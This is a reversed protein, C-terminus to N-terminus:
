QTPPCEPCPQPADGGKFYAVGYTIDLGNFNCSSNVDGSVYWFGGVPCDCEDYVPPTGGKFFAVGYVVDLGNYGGDDNVDGTVYGCTPVNKFVSITRTDDNATVIDLDGDLDLDSTFVDKVDNEDSVILAEDLYFTGDGANYYRFMNYVGDPSIRSVVALDLSQDGNLDSPFVSYNRSGTIYDIQPNFGGNGNNILISLSKGSYNATALDLFNDHNLDASIIENPYGIVPYYVPETFIGMGDNFFLVVAQPVNNWVISVDPAGDNNYDGANMAYTHHGPSPFSYASDVVFNGYGDNSLQTMFNFLSDRGTALIDLDTDGDIDAICADRIENGLYYETVTGFTGDGNNQLVGIDGNGCAVIIDIDADQDLDGAYCNLFTSNCGYVIDSRVPFTGDGDNLFVSINGAIIDPYDDM